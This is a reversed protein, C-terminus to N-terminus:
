IFNNLFFVCFFDEAERGDGHRRGRREGVTSLAQHYVEEECAETQQLYSPFVPWICVGKM